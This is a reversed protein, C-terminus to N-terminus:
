NKKSFNYRTVKAHIDSAGTQLLPVPKSQRLKTQYQQNPSPRPVGHTKYYDDWTTANGNNTASGSSSTNASSNSGTNNQDRPNAGWLTKDLDFSQGNENAANTGNHSGSMTESSVSSSTSASSEGALASLPAVGFMLFAIGAGLLSVKVM